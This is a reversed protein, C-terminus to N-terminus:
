TASSATTMPTTGPSYWRTTPRRPPCAPPSPRSPRQRPTSTSGARSAREGRTRQHGQHPLHLSDGGGRQRRLVHHRRQVTDSVLETFEGKGDTERNRRLIVYGIISDDNPHDWTLTVQEHTATASLGTPKAPPEPAAVADTAGSTLTEENGGDDTFSVQVKIAKGADDDVLTYTSGTAGSITDGDASGNTASRRTTWGTRTPLAQHTLRSPRELKSLAGSQRHPPLATPSPLQRLRM